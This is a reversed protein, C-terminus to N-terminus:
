GKSTLTKPGRTMMAFAGTIVTGGTWIVVLITTGLISGIDHGTQEAGTLAGHNGLAALYSILWVAMFAQWIWFIVLIFLGFPGRKRTEVFTTGSM